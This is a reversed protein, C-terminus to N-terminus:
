SLQEYRRDLVYLRKHPGIETTPELLLAHRWTHLRATRMTAAHPNRAYRVKRGRGSVVFAVRRSRTRPIAASIHDECELCARFQWLGRSLAKIVTKREEAGRADFRVGSGQGTM